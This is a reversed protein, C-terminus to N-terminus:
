LMDFSKKRKGTRLSVNSGVLENSEVPLRFVCLLFTAFTIIVEMSEKRPVTQWFAAKEEERNTIKGGESAECRSSSGEQTGETSQEFRGVTSFALCFM